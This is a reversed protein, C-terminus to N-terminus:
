VNQQITLAVFAILPSFAVLITIVALVRSHGRVLNVVAIVISALVLVAAAIFIVQYGFSGSGSGSLAVDIGTFFSWVMLAVGVVAALLPIVGRRANM